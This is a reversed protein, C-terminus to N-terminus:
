NFAASRAQNSVTSVITAFRSFTIEATLRSNFLSIADANFLHYSHAISVIVFRSFVRLLRIFSRLLCRADAIWFHYSYVM